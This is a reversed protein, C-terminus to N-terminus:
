DRHQGRRDLILFSYDFGNRADARHDKRSTEAWTAADFEPFFADGDFDAHVLTLYIRSARPMTQNYISAGGIVMLEPCDRLGTFADDLSAFVECGKPLYGFRRTVLINRRQPLPKGISEYTRRGMLVPKGITLARFHRLDAPLHWPLSGAVGIVRNRGMAALLSIDM